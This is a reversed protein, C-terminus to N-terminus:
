RSTSRSQVSAILNDVGNPNEADRPTSRMAGAALVALAGALLVIWGWSPRASLGLVGSFTFLFNLVLVVLSRSRAPSSCGNTIEFLRWVRPHLRWSSYWSLGERVSTMLDDDLKNLEDLSEKQLVLQGEGLIRVIM